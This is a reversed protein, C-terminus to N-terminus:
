KQICIYNGFKTSRFEFKYDKIEEAIRRLEDDSESIVINKGKKVVRIMEKLSEQPVSYNDICIVADFTDDKFPIDQSNAQVFEGNGNAKEKAKKFVGEIIDLGVVKYNGSASTLPSEGCGVDLIIDGEEVGVEKIIERYFKRHNSAYRCREFYEYLKRLLTGAM